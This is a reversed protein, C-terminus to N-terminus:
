KTTMVIFGLVLAAVCMGLGVVLLVLSAGVALMQDSRRFEAARAAGYIAISFALTVGITAALSAAVTKLLADGDVIVALLSM